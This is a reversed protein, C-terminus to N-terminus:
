RTDVTPNYKYVKWVDLTRELVQELYIGCTRKGTLKWVFVM